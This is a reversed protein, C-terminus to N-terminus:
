KCRTGRMQANMSMTAIPCGLHNEHQQDLISTLPMGCVVLSRPDIKRFCLALLYFIVTKGSGTPQVTILDGGNFLCNIAFVQSSIYEQHCNSFATSALIAQVQFDSLEFGLHNDQLVAALTNESMESFASPYKQKLDQLLHLPPDALSSSGLLQYNRAVDDETVSLGETISAEDEDSSVSSNLEDSDSIDVDGDGGDLPLDEVELHEM